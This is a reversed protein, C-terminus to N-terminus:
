LKGNETFMYGAGYVTKIRKGFMGLKRRLSEIHKDVCESYVNAADEGWLKELMSERSIVRKENSVLLALIEFEKQTLNSLETYKGPKSEIKVARRNGDIEIGGARSSFKSVAETIAPMIRRIHAKLKAVLIREDINKYVFDDAGAELFAAIQTNSTKQQEAFLFVSVPRRLRLIGTFDDMDRCGPVGMEILDLEARAAERADGEGCLGAVSVSWCEKQFAKQWRISIAPDATIIHLNLARMDTSPSVIYEIPGGSAPDVLNIKLVSKPGAAPLNGRM